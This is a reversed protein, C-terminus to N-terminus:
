QTQGPDEEVAPSDKASVKLKLTATVDTHLKITVEFDGTGKIPKKLEIQRRDIERFQRDTEQLSEHIDKATVSGFAKGDQGTALEFKLRQKNLRNALKTASELEEAERAVRAQQLSEIHRLNGRTAEYAKNKPILYNLAFGRRVKVVDAEVGLNEVKEKLIVKIQSM